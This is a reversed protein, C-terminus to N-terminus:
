EADGSHHSPRKVMNQGHKTDRWSLGMHLVNTRAASLYFQFMEESYEDRRHYIEFLWKLAKRLEEGYRRERSDPLTTLFKVDRILHALCSQCRM